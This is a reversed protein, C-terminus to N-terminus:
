YNVTFTKEETLTLIDILPISFAEPMKKTRSNKLLIRISGSTIEEAIENGYLSAVLEIYEEKSMTDGTFCPAMLLDAYKQIVNNQNTILDQLIEPSLSIKMQTALGEKNRIIKIFDFKKDSCQFNINLTEEKGNTKSTTAKSGTFGMQFLAREIELTDFMTSNVNNSNKSSNSNDFSSILENTAKGATTSFNYSLQNNELATVNISVPCGTFFVTSFIISTFSIIKFLNKKM